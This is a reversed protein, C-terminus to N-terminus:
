CQRDILDIYGHCMDGVSAVVILFNVWLMYSVHEWM